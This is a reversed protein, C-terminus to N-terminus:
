YDVCLRFSGNRKCVFLILASVPWKSAKIFSNALNTKIYTKLTKFEVLGLSYIHRYPPQKGQELEIAHENARTQESLINALKESFVNAFDSYKALINIKKALLLAIQAKKVLHITMSLRLDLSNIYVVFDKIKKNLAAIAFDQKYILKIRRTTFLTEAITYSSWILEQKNFYTNANNFIFFPMKFVVEISINALLFTEQFFQVRNLKDIVQFSAIVIKFTKILSGDIKQAKMNTKSTQLDLRKAYAPTM